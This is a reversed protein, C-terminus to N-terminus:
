CVGVSVWAVGEGWEGWGLGACQCLAFKHYLSGQQSPTYHETMEMKAVLHAQGAEAEQQIM